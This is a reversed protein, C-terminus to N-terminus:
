SGGYVTVGRGQVQLSDTGDGAYFATSSSGAGSVTHGGIFITDNGAGGRVTTSVFSGNINVSDDALSLKSTSTLSNVAALIAVLLLTDAGAGGYVTSTQITQAKVVISDAGTDTGASDSGYVETNFVSNSSNLIISDAGLNGAIM